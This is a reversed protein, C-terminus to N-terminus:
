RLGLSALLDALSCSLFLGTAGLESTTAFFALHLNVLRRRLLLLVRILSFLLHGLSLLCEECGVGVHVPGVYHDLCLLRM